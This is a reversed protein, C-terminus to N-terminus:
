VHARGIKFAVSAYEGSDLIFENEPDKSANTIRHYKQARGKQTVVGCCEHPYAEKAHQFIELKIKPTLM